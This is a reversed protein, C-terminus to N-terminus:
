EDIKKVGDILNIVKSIDGCYSMTIGRESYTIYDNGKEICAMKLVRNNVSFIAFMVLGALILMILVYMFMQFNKDKM